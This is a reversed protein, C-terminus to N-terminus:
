SSKQYPLVSTALTSDTDKTQYQSPDFQPCLEFFSKRAVVVRQLTREGVDSVDDRAHQLALNDIVLFDGNHWSHEYINEPRYLYNFLENILADSEAPALGEIRATQQECVYLIPAGTVPHPMIVPRTFRPAWNPIPVESELHRVTQDAPFVTTAELSRLRDKLPAPLMRWTYAGNAFRTSSRGGQVDIALFSIALYPDSTFALDSHYPLRIRGQTGKGEINSLYGVGDDASALLPGFCEAIGIQEAMTLAQCRFLLLSHTYLLDHLAGRESETLPQRLDFDVELGFPRNEKWRLRGAASETM